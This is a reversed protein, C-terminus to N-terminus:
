VSSINKYVAYLYNDQHQYSNISTSLFLFVFIINRKPSFVLLFFEFQLQRPMKRFNGQKDKGAKTVWVAHKKTHTKKPQKKQKTPTQTQQQRRKLALYKSQM